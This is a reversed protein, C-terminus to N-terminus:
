LRHGALAKPETDHGCTMTLLDRVKMARLNESPDAPADNPFFKLVPDDLSLKGSEIALGVATSNFSKSLSHLVHPKDPAEPKWWGEGIVQGHRVIMFSHLTNIKDAAAVFERIAQSSIGQAEPTSRPLPM